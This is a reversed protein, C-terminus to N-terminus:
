RLEAGRGVPFLNSAEIPRMSTRHSRCRQIAQQGARILGEALARGGAGGAGADHGLEHSLAVWLQRCGRPQFASSAGRRAIPSICPLDSRLRSVQRRIFALGGISPRTSTRHCTGRGQSQRHATSLSPAVAPRVPPARSAVFLRPLSSSLHRHQQWAREKSRCRHVRPHRLRRRRAHPDRHEGAGPDFQDLRGTSSQMQRAM